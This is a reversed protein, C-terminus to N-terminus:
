AKAAKRAYKTRMEHALRNMEHQRRQIEKEPVGRLASWRITITAGYRDKYTVDNLERM